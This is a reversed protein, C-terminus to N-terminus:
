TRRRGFPFGFRPRRKPAASEGDALRRLERVLDPNSVPVGVGPHRPLPAEKIDLVTLAAIAHGAAEEARGRRAAVRARATLYRVVRDRFFGTKQIEPEVEVLLSDAEALSAADGLRLLAEALLLETAGSTMSSSGCEAIGRLAQRYEDVADDLRDSIVYSSGLTEHIGNISMLSGKAQEHEAIYQWLLARGAERTPEDAEERNALTSGQIRLYEGRSSRSRALRGEFAEAIAANWETSRYWNDDRPSRARKPAAKPLAPPLADFHELARRASRRAWQPGNELADLFVPIAAPARLRALASIANGRVDPDDVLALLVAVAERRKSKGLGSVAMQRAHGHAPNQVLEVVDDFWRDDWSLEIASGAIWRVGDDPETRFADVLSQNVAPRAWAKGLAHLIWGRNDPSESRELWDMLLPLAPRYRDSSNALRSLDSYDVGVGRLEELILAEERDDDPTRAVQATDRQM